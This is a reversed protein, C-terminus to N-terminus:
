ERELLQAFRKCLEYGLEEKSMLPLEDVGNKSLITVRNSDVKFGAGQERLDNVVLMDVKKKTFKKMANDMINETEMAFGCLVQNEKRNQSVEMLIDPNRVLAISLDGDTKKIKEDAVSAPRYDAVAAAKVIIDASPLAEMVANRMDIASVVPVYNVGQLKPLANNGAILTVKAGCRRAMKAIAFGMKGSSHNSIYRVPDVAEQTAGATVVLHKGELCKDTFCVQEIADVLDSVEALKGTGVDGCALRGASPDIVTYGLEKCLALNRQTVENEYMNTNMAPAILKHGKCALFTTTLMDDALGCVVKAIVNATAPAIIFADAKQALEIHMVRGNPDKEFMEYVPHKSLAAFTEKGVFAKAHESMLVYVDFDKKVLDSVLQASKFAAIGGTVGVIVTKM